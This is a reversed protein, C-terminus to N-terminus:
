FTQPILQWLPKVQHAQSTMLLKMLSRTKWGQGLKRDLIELTEKQRDLLPLVRDQKRCLRTM